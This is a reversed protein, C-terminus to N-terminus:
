LTDAGADFTLWVAHQPARNVIPIPKLYEQFDAVAVHQRASTRHRIGKAEYLYASFAGMLRTKGVGTALAFCLSPFDREFDEVTPFETKITELAQATDGNKELSVIECVRALIELSDRQPPRLSLRNSIANVQQISM